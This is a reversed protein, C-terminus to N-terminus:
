STFPLIHGEYSTYVDIPCIGADRSVKFRVGCPKVLEDALSDVANLAYGGVSHCIRGIDVRRCADEHAM